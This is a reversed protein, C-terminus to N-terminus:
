EPDKSSLWSSSMLSFFPLVHFCYNAARNIPFPVEDRVQFKMNAAHAFGQVVGCLARKMQSTEVLPLVYRLKSLTLVLFPESKLAYASVLDGLTILFSLPPLEMIDVHSQLEHM